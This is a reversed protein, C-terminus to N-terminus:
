VQEIEFSLLTPAGTGSLIQQGSQTSPSPAAEDIADATTSLPGALEDSKWVTSIAGSGSEFQWQTRIRYRDPVATNATQAWPPTFVSGSTIQAQSDLGQLRQQAQLWQGAIGRFVSVTAANIGQASLIAAGTSQLEAPDYPQAAGQAQLQWTAAASRLDTWIQSTTAGQAAGSQLVGFLGRLLPNDSAPAPGEAM